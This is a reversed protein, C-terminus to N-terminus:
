MVDAFAGKTKMFFRYGLLCVIFAAATYGLFSSWDPPQGLLIVRRMDEVIGAIPNIWILFQYKEPLMSPPYVIPSAYMWASLALPIIHRIDHVFVGLSSLLWSMGLALTTQSFLILPLFLITWHVTHIYFVALVILMTITIVMSALGSITVVAPMLELPFIVKKVLNPFETICTPARNITESFAIWPLLGAMLNLAFNSTSADAGFRVKLIICFLFTYLALHGLPTLLTWLAGMMSGKYKGVLDRKVMLLFLPGLDWVSGGTAPVVADEVNVTTLASAERLGPKEKLDISM